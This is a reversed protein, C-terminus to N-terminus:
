MLRCEICHRCYQLYLINFQSDVSRVLSPNSILERWSKWCGDEECLECRKHLCERRVVRLEDDDTIEVDVHLFRIIRVSLSEGIKQVLEAEDLVDLFGGM